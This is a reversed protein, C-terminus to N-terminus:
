LTTNYAYPTAKPCTRSISLGKSVLKKYRDLHKRQHWRKNMRGLCLNAYEWIQVFLLTAMSHKFYEAWGKLSAVVKEKAAYPTMTALNSKNTLLRIRQRIRNEAKDSPFWKTVRKGRKKSYYRVFHFRLFDFGEKGTDALRTKEKSLSLGISTIIKDLVGLAEEKMAWKGSGLVVFDDAYRVRHAGVRSTMGSENWAKDLQDLFVNALLPIPSGQAVELEGSDVNAGGDLIGANLWQKVLSLISGDVIRRAFRKMLLNKQITDFCSSIDADIVSEYGFNLRIVVERVADHASKGERFGYSNAEFDQEFIPQLILMAAAQVTRDKLTPISIPRTKGNAKPIWVRKLPSPAYTHEKLEKSIQSLFAQEGEKEVDEIEKGDIGAAGKNQKVHNWAARLVDERYLKDYLSHFRRTRDAKAAGCLSQRLESVSKDM